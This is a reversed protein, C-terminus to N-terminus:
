QQGQGRRGEGQGPGQGPGGMGRGRRLRIGLKEATDELKKTRKDILTQISKATEKANEKLAQAHITQLEAMAEDHESALQRGGKLIMVQQEIVGIIAAQEERRKMMAERFKTREEDSMDQFGGEPRPMPAEMGEKLKALQAEIAAIAKQQSERGMGGRMRPRDGQGFATLVVALVTLIAITIIIYRKMISVELFILKSVNWRIGIASILM